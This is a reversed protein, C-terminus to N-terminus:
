SPSTAVFTLGLGGCASSFTNMTPSLQRKSLPVLTQNSPLKWGHSYLYRTLCKDDDSNLAKGFFTDNLFYDSFENTQLIETRYAATRGSLTSISGDLTNTALNNWVRRELYSIALFNWGDPNENRHVRQRAGGAGVKPDEFIALLYELFRTPWHVDDDALVCIPTTVLPMAKLIQKRKDLKSVGLITVYFANDHCCREVLEFNNNSTVIFIASPSCATVSHLCGILEPPSKFTTPIIVTVDKCSFKSPSQIPTPKTLLYIFMSMITRLYRFVFLAWFLQIRSPLEM